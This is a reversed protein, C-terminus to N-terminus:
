AFVVVGAPNTLTGDTCTLGPSLTPDASVGFFGGLMGLLEALTFTITVGQFTSTGTFPSGFDEVLVFGSGDSTPTWTGNIQGSLTVIVGQIDQTQSGAFDATWTGDSRLLLTVGIIPPTQADLLRDVCPTTPVTPPTTEPETSQPPPPVHFRVTISASGSPDNFTAVSGIASGALSALLDAVPGPLAGLAGGVIQEVVAGLQQDEPRTVTVSVGVTASAPVGSANDAPEVATVYDLTAAYEGNDDAITTEQAAVTAHIGFTPTWTVTAGNPDLDPLTVGALDACAQIAAPWELIAGGAIHAVFSGPNGPNPAIGYDIALFPEKDISFVWPDVVHAVVAAVGLATIALQIPVLLPALATGLVEEFLQVALEALTGILPVDQLAGVIASTMANYFDSLAGCVGTGSEPSDVSSRWGFPESAMDAGDTTLDDVFLVLTAWPYTVVSPDTITTVDVPMIARAATAAPSEATILWAAVMADVPVVDAAVPFAERLHAGTIGVGMSAQRALNGAQWDTLTVGAPEGPDDISTM